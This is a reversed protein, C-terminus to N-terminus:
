GVIGRIIWRGLLVLVALCAIFGAVFTLAATM